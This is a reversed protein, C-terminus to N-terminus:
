AAMAAEKERWVEGTRLMALMVRALSHGTAVLQVGSRAPPGGCGGTIPQRTADLGNIRGCLGNVASKSGAFM